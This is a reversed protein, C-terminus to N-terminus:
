FPVDSTDDQEQRSRAAPKASQQGGKGGLMQMVDGRIETSYKEVGDKDQYKRTRLAGEIYVSSGKKLDAHFWGAAFSPHRSCLRDWAIPGGGEVLDKMFRSVLAETGFPLLDIVLRDRGQAMRAELFADVARTRRARVLAAIARCLIRKEVIEGLARTIQADDCFVAVM